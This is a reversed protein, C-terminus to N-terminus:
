SEGGRELGSVGGDVAGLEVGGGRKEGGGVGGVGGDEGAAVAAGGGDGVVHDAVVLLADAVAGMEARADDAEGAVDLEHGGGDVIDAVGLDEGQGETEVGAFAVDQDCDAGGAVGLVDDAGEGHRAFEAELGDREGAEGASACALQGVDGEVHVGGVVADDFVGVLGEHVREGLEQAQAGHRGVLDALAAELGESGM